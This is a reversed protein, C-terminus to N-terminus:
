FSPTYNTTTLCTGWFKFWAVQGHLCWPDIKDYDTGLLFAGLLATEGPESGLMQGDVFIYITGSADRSVALEYWSDIAITSPPLDIAPAAQGELYLSGDDYTWVTWYTDLAENLTIPVEGAPPNAVHRLVMRLTFEGAGIATIAPDSITLYGGTTGSFDLSTIGVPSVFTDTIALSGTTTTETISPSLLSGLNSYSPAGVPQNFDLHVLPLPDDSAYVGLALGIEAVKTTVVPGTFSFAEVGLRIGGETQLAPPNQAPVLVVDTLDYVTDGTDPDVMTPPLPPLPGVAPVWFDGSSSGVGGLYLLDMSCIGGEATLQFSAGTSLYSGVTGRLKLQYSQAVTTPALSLPVQVNIAYRMAMNLRRYSYAYERALDDFPPIGTRDRIKTTGDSAEAIDAIVLDSDPVFPLSFSAGGLGGLDGLVIVESASGTIGYLTTKSPDVGLEEAQEAATIESTWQKAANRLTQIEEPQAILRRAQTLIAGIRAGSRTDKGGEAAAQQGEPTYGAAVWRRTRLRVDLFVVETTREVREAIFTSVAGPLSYVIEAPRTTTGDSLLEEPRAYPLNLSSGLVAVEQTVEVVERIVHGAIDFERATETVQTCSRTAASSAAADFGAAGLVAAYNDLAGTATATEITLYEQNKDDFYSCTKTTPAYTYDISREEPDNDPDNVDTDFNYYVYRTVADTSAESCIEQPTREDRTLKKVGRYTYNVKIRNPPIGGAGAPGTAILNEETLLRTGGGTPRLIGRSAVSGGSIFGYSSYAAYIAALTSSYTSTLEYEEAVNDIFVKDAGAPNAAGLSMGDGCRLVISSVPEVPIESSTGWWEPIVVDTEEVRSKFDMDQAQANLTLLCGLQLTTINDLPSYSKGTVRLSRNVGTFSVSEGLDAGSLGVIQCEGRTTILGSMSMYDDMITASILPGASCVIEQRIDITM